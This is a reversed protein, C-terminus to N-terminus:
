SHFLFYFSVSARVRARDTSLIFYYRSFRGLARQLYLTYVYRAVEHSKIPDRSDYHTWDRVNFNRVHIHFGMKGSFVIRIDSYNEKIKDLFMLVKDYALQLGASYINNTAFGNWPRWLQPVDIDVVYDGVIPYAKNAKSKEGVREPM